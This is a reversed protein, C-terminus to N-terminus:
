MMHVPFFFFFLFCKATRFGLLLGAGKAAAGYILSFGVMLPRRGAGYGYGEAEDHLETVNLGELGYVSYSWLPEMVMVVCM